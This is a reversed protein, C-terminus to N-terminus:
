RSRVELDDGTMSVSHFGMLIPFWFRAMDSSLHSADQAENKKSLPCAPSSLMQPILGNLSELAQFSIKPFGDNMAFQTYCNVMDGFSGSSIVVDLHENRVLQVAHFAFVAIKEHNDRGAISLTGFMTKWGSKIQMARAQIMQNLCHLIMDKVGTITTYEMIHEFPKLFDKQFKFHPLEDIELFRMSLQRLSDLASYVIHTNSHCGVQNFHQGLVAWIASWEFRIRDMNYYSVEVIKELSFMRPRESSGSSQIEQWSVDSLAAVFDVIATGNLNSSNTFIKDLALVVERSATQDAIDKAFVFNSGSRHRLATRSAQMSSRNMESSSRNPLVLARNVDPLSAADAGQNLLQFRELQSVCMLVDKWSSKLMNGEAIAIDLLTKIADVHKKRMESLNNLFTFKALTSVFANRALEIDFLCALHIAQRVGSLSFQIFEHIETSQLPGSLGALIPMWAVEYMPGVHRFHSASYFVATSSKSDRRQSRALSRFLAETKNAMEDSAAVYAERQLNRGVTSIANGIGAAFGQPQTVLGSILAAEQEDKLVIENRQIDDFISHLYDEPLDSHDNIGRNNKVFDLKTMRKKIQPNHQDSNLLIVSYALVYAVEANAFAKPNDHCYREGFKLMFRDIKQAEGPLRFCQLFKRLADVFKTRRFDMMDVFAHMIAVNEPDGEGLYEGIISKELGDTDLLFQAIIQPETSDLFGAQLLAEIGRKPKINFKRIAEMLAVKRQRLNEFQEGNDPSHLGSQNLARENGFSLGYSSLRPTSQLGPTTNHSGDPSSGSEDPESYDPKGNSEQSWIVLSMLVNLISHMSEIKIKYEMSSTVSNTDPSDLQLSSVSINNISTSPSHSGSSDVRPSPPPHPHDNAELQAKQM